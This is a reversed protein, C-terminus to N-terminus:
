QPPPCFVSLVTIEHADSEKKLFLLSFCIHIHNVTQKFCKNMHMNLSIFGYSNRLTVDRSVIRKTRLIVRNRAKDKLM